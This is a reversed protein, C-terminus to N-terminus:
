ELRAGTALDITLDKSYEIYCLLDLNMTSANTGKIQLSMPVMEEHDYKRNLNVVIYGYNSNYDALSILSASVGTHLNSNVSYSGNMENLYDEYKFEYAEKKLNSGSLLVKFNKIFYPSCTAPESSFCSEQPAPHTVGPFGGPGLITHKSLMPVIILRRMRSQSNTLLADFNEGATVKVLKMSLDEYMIKKTGINLYEIEADPNM